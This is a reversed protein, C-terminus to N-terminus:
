AKPPAFITRLGLIVLSNQSILTERKTYTKPGLLGDADLKNQYQFEAVAKYFADDVKNNM